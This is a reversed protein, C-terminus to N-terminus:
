GPRVGRVAREILAPLEAELRARLGAAADDVARQLAQELEAQLAARLVADGAAGAATSWAAQPLGAGGAADAPLGAVSHGAVQTLVPLDADHAAAGATGSEPALTPEARQTLTPIGPDSYHPM